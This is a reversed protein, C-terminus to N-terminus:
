RREETGKDDKGAEKRSSGKRRIKLSGKEGELRSRGERRAM